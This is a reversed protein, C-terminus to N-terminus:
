KGQGKYPKKRRHTKSPPTGSRVSDFFTEGGSSTSKSYTGSGQKTTKNSTGTIITNNIKAM